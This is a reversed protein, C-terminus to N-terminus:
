VSFGLHRGGSNMVVGTDGFFKKTAEERGEKVILVCKKSQMFYGYLPGRALLVDYMNRMKSFTDCGTGDDAFWAQKCLFKLEDHLPKLAIAFMAM